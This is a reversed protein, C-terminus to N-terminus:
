SFAALFFSVLLTETEHVSSLGPFASGGTMVSSMRRVVVRGYLESRWSEEVSQQLTGESLLIGFFLEVCAALEGSMFNFSTEGAM